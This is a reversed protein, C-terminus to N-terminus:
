LLLALGFDACSRSSKLWFVKEASLHGSHCYLPNYHVTCSKLVSLVRNFGVWIQFVRGTLGQLSPEEERLRKKAMFDAKNAMTIFNWLVPALLVLAILVPPSLVTIIAGSSTASANTASTRQMGLFYCWSFQVPCSWSGLVTRKVKSWVVIKVFM